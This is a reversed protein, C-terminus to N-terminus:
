LTLLSPLFTSASLARSSHTVTVCWECFLQVTAIDNEFKEEMGPYQIKVAVERRPHVQGDATRRPKLVARHVQGISAAGLVNDDFEEFVDNIKLGLDAEVIESVALGSLVSPSQDQLKKCWAMYEDPVFEDRTSVVQALKM